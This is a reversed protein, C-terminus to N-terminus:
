QNARKIWLLFEHRKAKPLLMIADSLMVTLAGAAASYTKHKEFSRENMDRIAHIVDRHNDMYENFKQQASKSM